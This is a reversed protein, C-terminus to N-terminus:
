PHIYNGTEYVSNAPWNASANILLVSLQVTTQQKVPFSVRLQTSAETSFNIKHWLHPCRQFMVNCQLSSGCFYNVSSAYYAALDTYHQSTQGDTHGRATVKQDTDAIACCAHSISM